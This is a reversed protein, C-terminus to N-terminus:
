YVSNGSSLRAQSGFENSIDGVFATFDRGGLSLAINAPQVQSEDLSINLDNVSRMNMGRPAEFNSDYRVPEIRALEAIEDSARSVLKKEKDLGIALGETTWAGIKIMDKSPSGIHLASSITDKINNAIGAATDYLERAKGTIGNLLGQMLWSGVSDLSISGAGDKTENGAGKGAKNSKDFGKQFGRVFADLVEGGSSFMDGIIQGIGEIAKLVVQKGQEYVKYLNNAIGLLFKGILEIGATILRDINDGIGGLVKVILDVGAKAVRDFNQTIGELFSVILDTGAKAFRPINDALGTLINVILDTWANIITPANQAIGELIQIFMQTFMEIIKPLNTTIVGIMTLLMVSFAEGILPANTIITQLIGRMMQSIVAIIQPIGPLLNTAFSTIMQAAGLGINKLTLPIKDAVQTLKIFQPIVLAVAAMLAAIGTTALAIGTGIGVAAVGISVFVVALAGAGVVAGNMLKASIAIAGSMIAVGASVALVANTGNEGEKALQTIAMVLVAIGGAAIGVGAGIKLVATAIGMLKPSATGASNGASSTGKAMSESAKASTQLPKNMGLLKGGLRGIAGITQGTVSAIGKIAGGINKAQVIFGSSASMAVGIYPSFGVFGRSVKALADDSTGAWTIMNDVMGLVATNTKKSAKMSNISFTGWAGGVKELSAGTNNQMDYAQQNLYENSKKTSGGAEDMAKAYAEWSNKADGSENNIAEMLPRMAQMGSTHFLTKLYATKNADGVGDLAKSTEKAIQTFPKMTGDANRYSLGLEDMADAAQNSPAQMQLMAHRLQQAAEASSTGKNTLLGIATATDSLDMGSSVATPGMTALAQQMSEISANSLNATRTLLAAAQEPSELSDGWVNMAQQVVTATASLDAGAATSAMAIAPFVKKLEEISAGNRAMEIMANASDQASLPLDQGMKLAVDSLGDIDKATGGAIIAATNLGQEFDGFSKLSKVGVATIATGAVTMGVGVAKGFKGTSGESKQAQGDMQKTAEKAKNMEDVYAKTNAILTTTLQYNDAM